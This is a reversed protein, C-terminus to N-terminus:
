LGQMLISWLYDIEDDTFNILINDIFLEKIKQLSFHKGYSCSTHVPVFGRVITLNTTIPQECLLCEFNDHLRGEYKCLVIYSQIIARKPNSQKTLKHALDDLLKMYFPELDEVEKLHYYFLKLFRQWFYLKKNDLIWPFNIQIVDKLRPINSKLSSQTEFDIKFGLHINSHRKGYFRYTTYLKKETIISVITDEDRVNSIHIIYGQM